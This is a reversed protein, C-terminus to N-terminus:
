CLVLGDCDNGDLHALGHLVWSVDSVQGDFELDHNMESFMEVNDIKKSGVSRFNDLTHRQLKFFILFLIFSSFNAYKENHFNHM